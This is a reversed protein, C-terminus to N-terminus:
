LPSPLLSALLSRPSSYHHHSRPPPQCFTACFKRGLKESQARRRSKDQEGNCRSNAWFNRGLSGMNWTTLLRYSTTGATNPLVPLTHPHSPPSCPRPHLSHRRHRALDALHPAPLRSSRCPCPSSSPRTLHFFPTISLMLPLCTSLTQAQPAPCSQCPTYPPALPPASCPRPYLSHSRHQALGALHTPPLPPFPSSLLLTLYPLNALSLM